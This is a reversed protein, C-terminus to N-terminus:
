VLYRRNLIRPQLLRPWLPKARMTSLAVIPFIPVLLIPLLIALNSRSRRSIHNLIIHHIHRSTGRSNSL